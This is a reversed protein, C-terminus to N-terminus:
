EVESRHSGLGLKLMTNYRGIRLYLRDTLFLYFPSLCFECRVERESGFPFFIYTGFTSFGEDIVLGGLGAPTGITACEKFDLVSALLVYAM